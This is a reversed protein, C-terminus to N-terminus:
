FLESRREILAKALKGTIRQPRFRLMTLAQYGSRIEAEKMEEHDIGFRDVILRIGRRKEADDEVVEISGFAIVSIFDTAFRSPIVTDRDVITLSAKANEAILALKHGRKGCHFYFCGDDYVYNLPVGYPMGEEGCLSLVGYSGRGIVAAIEEESLSQKGRRLRYEKM